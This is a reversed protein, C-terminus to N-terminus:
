VEITRRDKSSERDGAGPAKEKENSEHYGRGTLPPVGRRLASERRHKARLPPDAQSDHGRAILAQAGAGGSASRAHPPGRPRPARRPGARGPRRRRLLGGAPWEARRRDNGPGARTNSALITCGCAMADLLSCSLVFPVTLYIRLDSLSLIDILTAVPVLGTFCIPYM